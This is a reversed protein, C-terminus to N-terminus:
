RSYPRFGVALFGPPASVLLVSAIYSALAATRQSRFFAASSRMSVSRIAAKPQEAPAMVVANKHPTPSVLPSPADPLGPKEDSMWAPTASLPASISSLQPRLM